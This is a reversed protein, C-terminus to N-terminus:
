RESMPPTNPRHSPHEIRVIASNMSNNISKITRM